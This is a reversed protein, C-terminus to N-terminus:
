PLVAEIAKAIKRSGPKTFCPLSVSIHVQVDVPQVDIGQFAATTIRAVM